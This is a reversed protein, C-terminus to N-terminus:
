ANTKIKGKEKKCLEMIKFFDLNYTEEVHNIFKDVFKDNTYDVRLYDKYEPTEYFITVTISYERDTSSESQLVEKIWMPENTIFKNIEQEVQAPLGTFIKVRQNGYISKDDYNSYNQM